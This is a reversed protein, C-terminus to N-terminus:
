DNRDVLPANFNFGPFADRLQTHHLVATPLSEKRIAIKVTGGSVWFSHIREAAHLKKCYWWLQRYVPCLSYNAYIKNRGLNLKTKDIASLSKKNKM